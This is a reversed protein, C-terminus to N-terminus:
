HATLHLFALDQLINFEQHETFCVSATDTFQTCGAESELNVEFFM